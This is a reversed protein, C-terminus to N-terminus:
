LSKNKIIFVYFIIFGVIWFPVTFLVMLYDNGNKIIEILSFTLLGFWFLLFIIIYCKRLYKMVIDSKFIQAITYGLVCFACLCFPLLILKTIFNVGNIYLYILIINVIILAIVKFSNLLILYLNLIKSDDIEVENSNNLKIKYVLDYIIFYCPFLSYIIGYIKQFGVSMIISLLGPLLIVYVIPLLFVDELKIFPSYFNLWYSKKEKPVNFIENSECLIEKICDNKKLVYYYKGVEVISNSFLFVKGKKNIFTIKGNENKLAYLVIKKSKSIIDKICIVWCYFSVIIFFLGFIVGLGYKSLYICFENWNRIDFCGTIFLIFGGILGLFTIVFMVEWPYGNNENM